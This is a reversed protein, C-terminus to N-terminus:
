APVGQGYGPTPGTLRDRGRQALLEGATFLDGTTVRGGTVSSWIVGDSQERRVVIMVQTVDDLEHLVSLMAQQPSWKGTDMVRVVRQTPDDSM